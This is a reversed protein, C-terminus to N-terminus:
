GKSEYPASFAVLIDVVVLLSSALFFCGFKLFTVDPESVLNKPIKPNKEQRRMEQKQAEEQVKRDETTTDHM